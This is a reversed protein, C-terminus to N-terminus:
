HKKSGFHVMVTDNIESYFGLRVAFVDPNAKLNALVRSLNETKVEMEIGLYSGRDYTNNELM